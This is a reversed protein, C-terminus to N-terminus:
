KVPRPGVLREIDVTGLACDPHGMSRMSAFGLISAASELERRRIRGLEERSAVAVGSTRGADGDTACFLHCEVGRAAYAAIVGGIAFTEDDPHAFIAAISRRM